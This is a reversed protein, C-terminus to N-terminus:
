FNILGENFVCHLKGHHMAQICQNCSTCDSKSILGLRFKQVLHQDMIFPRCMSVADALGGDVVDRIDALERMGGVLILPKSIAKRAVRCEDLYYPNKADPRIHHFPTKEIGESIEVADLGAQICALASAIGEDVTKGRPHYDKLGLKIIIPFDPGTIQRIGRIIRTVFNARKEPTGGWDDQRLNTVPSLFMSVFWGHAGHIQVADFGAEAARRAAQVFDEVHEHVEDSSLARVKLNNDPNVMATPGVVEYGNLGPNGFWGAHMLQAAIKGGNQHVTDVLKALEPIMSDDHLGLQGPAAWGDLSPFLGSSIILGTEGITLERYFDMQKQSVKLKEGLNDVTASRVFRNKVIMGNIKFSKFLESM